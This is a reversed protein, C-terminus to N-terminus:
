RQWIFRGAYAASRPLVTGGGGRPIRSKLIVNVRHANCLFFSTLFLHHGGGGARLREVVLSSWDNVNQGVLKELYEM